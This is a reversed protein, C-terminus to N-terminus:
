FIGRAGARGPRISLVPEDFIQRAVARGDKLQKKQQAVQIVSESVGRGAKETATYWAISYAIVTDGHRMESADMGAVKYHKKPVKPVGNSETVVAHDMLVLSDSCIEIKRSELAQKYRPMLKLYMPDSLKVPIVFDESFKEQTDEAITLGNGGADIGCGCCHPLAAIIWWLVQRQQQIPCNKLELLFPSFRTLDEREVLPAIATMDGIRGFDMGVYSARHHSVASILPKIHADLYDRIFDQRDDRSREMFDAKLSLRFVPYQTKMCTEVLVGPLYQAEAAKPKCFFEQDPDPSRDILQQRWREQRTETWNIGQVYCIRRYLGDKLADDLDIVHLSYDWKGAQIERVLDHFPEAVGNFTSIVVVQGGWMLLPTAAALLANLDPVFAAEDIVVRGGKSRINSANSSAAIIEHGSAFDIRFTKADKDLDDVIIENVKTGIIQFKDIWFKCDEIFQRTMSENYSLYVSPMGKVGALAAAMVSAAAECWSLGIRRSKVCVKVPHKDAYWRQQYPLLLYPVEIKAPAAM